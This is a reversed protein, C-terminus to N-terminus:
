KIHKLLKFLDKKHKPTWFQGDIGCPGHEREISCYSSHTSAKKKKIKGTVPDVISTMEVIRNCKAYDGKEKGFSLITLIWNENYFKCTTCTVLEETDSTDNNM